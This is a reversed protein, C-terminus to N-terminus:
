NRHSMENEDLATLQLNYRPCICLMFLYNPVYVIPKAHVMAACVYVNYHGEVHSMVHESDTECTHCDDDITYNVYLLAFKRMKVKM